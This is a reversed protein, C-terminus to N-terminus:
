KGGSVAGGNVTLTERNSSQGNAVIQTMKASGGLADYIGGITQTMGASFKTMTYAGDYIVVARLPTGPTLVRYVVVLSAGDVYVINGNGSGGGDPLKVTYSGNALRVNNTHDVPLYRLVDARYVRGSGNSAGGTGGSSWCATNMSNGRVSGVIANSAIPVSGTPGVGLFGNVASPAATTEVTEWYLFAAVIDAGAPVGSFDFTRTAFGNVGTGRMGGVGGSVVDGTVYYNKTYNLADAARVLPAFLALIGLSLMPYRFYTSFLRSSNIKQMTRAGSVCVTGLLM